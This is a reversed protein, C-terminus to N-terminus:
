RRQTLQSLQQAGQTRQRNAANRADEQPIALEEAIARLALERSQDADKQASALAQNASAEATAAETRAATKEAAQARSSRVTERASLADEILRTTEDGFM